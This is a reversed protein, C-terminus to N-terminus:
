LGGHASSCGAFNNRAVTLDGFDTANGTSAITIYDLTNTVPGPVTEGGGFVGRTSNSCAAPNRRAVTLDGFDTANGESAITIYDIVNLITFAPPGLSGGGFVGRTSSSCATLLTRINTLDGFDTANGTSAITIYDIVNIWPSYGGGFVGRTSSSCAALGTRGVTLDGFDTANGTTAITIYDIINSHVSSFGGGFVGRTSSSCAALGRRAVSLDGFDTANGTTAITIYDIINSNGPAYGGGFVGRTSSSCSALQRRTRTLDGFDTANGTSAITIYDITNTTGAPAPSEGGGFVGTDAPSPTYSNSGLVKWATGDYVELGGITSNYRISGIVPSAPREDTTGNPLDCNTTATVGVGLINRGNDIVITGLIKISM